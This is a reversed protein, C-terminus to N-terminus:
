KPDLKTIFFFQEADNPTIPIFEHWHSLAVTNHPALPMKPSYHPSKESSSDSLQLVPHNTIAKKM